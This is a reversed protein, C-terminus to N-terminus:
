RRSVRKEFFYFYRKGAVKVDVLGYTIPITVRFDIVIQNEATEIRRDDGTLIM